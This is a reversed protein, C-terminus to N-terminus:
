LEKLRDMFKQRQEILRNKYPLGYKLLRETPYNVICKEYNELEIETLQICHAIEDKTLTKIKKLANYLTM